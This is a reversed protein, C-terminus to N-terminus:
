DGVGYIGASSAYIFHSVGVRRAYDILEVTSLTNVKFVEPASEPFQRFNESQALHVVIDMEPPLKEVDIKESFDCVITNVQPLDLRRRGIAYVEFRNSQILKQVLHHGILGTAGTVLVRKRM